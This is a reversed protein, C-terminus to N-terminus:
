AAIKGEQEGDELYENEFERIQDDSLLDGEIHRLRKEAFRHSSKDLDYGIAKRGLLRAVATTTGTGNFIDLVTDGIKTTLLIPLLPIYSPYPAIHRYDPDVEKLEDWNFGNAKLISEVHQEDLFNKFREYPKTVTWTPDIRKKGFGDDYSGKKVQFKGGEKWHKFERYQYKKADKVFHLIYEFSPLLRNGVSNPKYNSKWWILKEVFVWGDEVLRLILKEPVMCSVGEEYSEAIVIFMSGTSKLKKYVGRRIDVEKQIYEDVTREMGHQPTKPASKVPYKRQQFYPCSDVATDISDDPIDDLIECTGNYLEYGNGKVFSMAEILANTGQEKKEKQYIQMMKHAQHIKMQGQELKDMLGLGKIEKDGSEEFEKVDLLRRLTSSKFECGLLECAIEFRDKGSFDIADEDVSLEDIRERKKGQSLGIIGLIIEAQHILEVLPRKTKFNRLVSQNQIEEETYDFVEIKLTSWGLEQAAFFRSVGDFIRYHDGYVIVKVAELQGVMKMTLALGHLNKTKYTELVKPHVELLSIAVEFVNEKMTSMNNHKVFKETLPDDINVPLHPHDMSNEEASLAAPLFEQFVPTSINVPLHTSSENTQSIANETKM